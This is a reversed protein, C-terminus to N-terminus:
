FLAVLSSAATGTARIHSVRIPLVAGQPVGVFLTDNTDDVMRVTLNGGVGVYIARTYFALANTDSPTIAEASSAPSEVTNDASNLYNYRNEPM